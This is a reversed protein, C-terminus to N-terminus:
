VHVKCGDESSCRGNEVSAVHDIYMDRQYADVDEADGDLTNFFGISVDSSQKLYDLAESDTQPVTLKANLSEDSADYYANHFYGRINSAYTVAGRDPHELVYPANDLSWSAKQLEGGPKLFTYDADNITYTQPISRAATVEFRYFNDADFFRRHSESVLNSDVTPVSDWETDSDVTIATDDVDVKVQSEVADVTNWTGEFNM